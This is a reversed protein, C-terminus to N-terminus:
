RNGFTRQFQQGLKCISHFHEVPRVCFYLMSGRLQLPIFTDTHFLFTSMSIPVHINDIVDVNFSIKELKGITKKM